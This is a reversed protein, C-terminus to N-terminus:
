EAFAALAAIEKKVKSAWRAQEDKIVGHDTETDYQIQTDSLLDRYKKSLAKMADQGLTCPSELSALEQRFKRATLEAVDFHLQEHALLAASGGGDKAWSLERDFVASVTYTFQSSADCGWNFSFKTFTRASMDADPPPSARFDAWVLPSPSQWALFRGDSQLLCTTLLLILLRMITSHQSAM